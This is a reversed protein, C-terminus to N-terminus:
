SLAAVQEAIAREENTAVVFTRVAADDDTLEKIEDDSRDGMNKQTDIAIGLHALSETVRQRIEAANEGVGATFILADLGGLIALYAGIYKQIRHVYVDIALNASADGDSAQQLIDRMDAKGCLGLVGSEENLLHDIQEASMGAARNLYYAVAPDIDGSRTTMVLGELPTLGMSTEVAEGGKSATASAGGGLHLSIIRQNATPGALLPLVQETVYRHSIGHAGYRRIGYESFFKEPIAYRAAAAPLNVFYSTDFVLVQPLGLGRDSIEELVTRGPPNHLPALVDLKALQHRVNEDVRVAADFFSGGHVIRHGIAKLGINECRKLVAEAASLHDAADGEPEGIRDYVGEDLRAGSDTDVVAFKLTTSGVNFVLVNM